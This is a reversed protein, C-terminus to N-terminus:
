HNIHLRGVGGQVVANSKHPAPPPTYSVPGYTFQTRRPGSCARIWERDSCLRKGAATCARAAQDASIYGQPTAGRESVARVQVRDPSHFASWARESGDGLRQVLSGEYRGVCFREDVM